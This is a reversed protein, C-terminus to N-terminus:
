KTLNLHFTEGGKSLAVPTRLGRIAALTARSFCLGYIDLSSPRPLFISIRCLSIGHSLRIRLVTEPELRDNMERARVLAERWRDERQGELKRWGETIKEEPEQEEKAAEIGGMQM